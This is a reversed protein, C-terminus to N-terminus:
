ADLLLDVGVLVLELLRDDDRLVVVLAATRVGLVADRVDVLALV